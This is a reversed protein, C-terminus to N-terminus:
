GVNQALGTLLQNTTTSYPNRFLVYKKGKYMQEVFADKEKLYQKVKGNITQTFSVVKESTYVTVKGSVSKM